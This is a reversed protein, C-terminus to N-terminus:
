DCESYGVIDNGLRSVPVGVEDDTMMRQQEM